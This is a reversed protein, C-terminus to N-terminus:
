GVPGFQPFTDILWLSISQFGGTLFAVATSAYSATECRKEKM